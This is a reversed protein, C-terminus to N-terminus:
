WDPLGGQDLLEQLNTKALELDDHEIGASHYEVGAILSVAANVKELVERNRQAQESTEDERLRNILDDRVRVIANEAIDVEQRLEAPKKELARELSAVAERLEEEISERPQYLEGQGPVGNTVIRV